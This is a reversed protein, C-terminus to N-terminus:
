LNQPRADKTMVKQMIACLATKDKANLTVGEILFSFGVKKEEAVFLFTPAGTKKRM